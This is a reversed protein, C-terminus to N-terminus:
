ATKILFYLGFKTASKVYYLKHERILHIFLKSNIRLKDLFSIYEEKPSRNEAYFFKQQYTHYVTIIYFM